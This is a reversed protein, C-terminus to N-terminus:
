AAAAYFLDNRLATRHCFDGCVDQGRRLFDLRGRTVHACAAAAYAHMQAAALNAVDVAVRRVGDVLPHDAGFARRSDHLLVGRRAQRPRQAALCAGIAASRLELRDRPLLRVGRDDLAQRFNARGIRLLEREEGPAVLHLGERAHEGPLEARRVVRRVAAEARHVHSGAHDVRDAAREPFEAAGVEIARLEEHHDARSFVMVRIRELDRDRLELALATAEDRDVRHAGAIRRDGVFPNRDTGAGVAREDERERVFDDIGAKVITGEERAIGVRTVQDVDIWRAVRVTKRDAATFSGQVAIGIEVVVFHPPIALAVRGDHVVAVAAIGRECALEPHGVALRHLRSELKEDIAHLLVRRLPGGVDRAYGGRRYAPERVLHADRRAVLLDLQRNRPGIAPAHLVLGDGPIGNRKVRHASEGCV